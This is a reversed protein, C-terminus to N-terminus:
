SPRGAVTNTLRGLGTASVSVTDGPELFRPPSFGIGVGAPTGTAIIDGPVLTMVETLCAILEPVSFILDRFQAQQRLEGNVECRVEIDDPDAFDDMTAAWPGMPCFTDFNKGLFWQKHDRQVDRATIDNVLTLGWVHSWADAASVSRATRGIVVAVEAEYDLSSMARRTPQIEDGPGVISNARKTFFIPQEPEASAGGTADYGSTAFESAHERYNKGVCIINAPVTDFPALLRVDDVRHSEEGVSAEGGEGGILQSM